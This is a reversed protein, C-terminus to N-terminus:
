AQSLNLLFVMDLQAGTACLLLCPRVQSDSSSRTNRFVVISMVGGVRIGHLMVRVKHEKNYVCLLM